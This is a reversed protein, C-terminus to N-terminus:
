AGVATLLVETFVGALLGVTLGWANWTPTELKRGVAFLEGIVYMIAGSALALFLVSLTESTFRYGIMTGVFTPGGAILGSVGLFRWSVPQGALPGAIGFGETANHLGFGIILLVALSIAGSQASSGIALGEAFNHLGIGIAIVLAVRQATEPRNRRTRQTYYVLGMLGLAVGAVLAIAMGWINSAHAALDENLPEVAHELIDVFLFFLIGIAVANLFALRARSVFKFRAVPLGLFITLGALAGLVGTQFLSM